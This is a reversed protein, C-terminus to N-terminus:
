NLHQLCDATSCPMSRTELQPAHQHANCTAHQAPPLDLVTCHMSLLGDPLLMMCLGTSSRSGQATNCIRDATKPSTSIVQDVGKQSLSISPTTSRVRNSPTHTACYLPTSVPTIICLRVLALRIARRHIITVNHHTRTQYRTTGLTDLM